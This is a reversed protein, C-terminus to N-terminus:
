PGFVGKKFLPDSRFFLEFVYNCQIAKAKEELAKAKKEQNQEEEDLKKLEVRLQVFVKSLRARWAKVNDKHPGCAAWGQGLHERVEEEHYSLLWFGCTAGEQFVTPCREPLAQEVGFGEKLLWQARARATKSGPGYSDRFRIAVVKSDQVDLSLQTWHDPGESHIPVLIRKKTRLWKEFLAKM